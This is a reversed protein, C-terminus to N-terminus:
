IACITECYIRLELFMLTLIQNIKFDTKMGAKPKVTCEKANTRNGIFIRQPLFLTVPSSYPYSTHVITQIPVNFHAKQIFVTSYAYDQINRDIKPGM